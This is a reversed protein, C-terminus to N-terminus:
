SLLGSVTARHGGQYTGLLWRKLLSIMLHAHPLLEQGSKLTKVVHKYGEDKVAAYAKWGDTVITAGPEAIKKIFDVLTTSKADPIMALGVRGVKKEDCSLEVAVAILTKKEAGRGPKAQEQGGIYAEDVEVVPGLKEREARAMARRLKHLVNWTTTHAVKLVRSLGTANAGYKQSM